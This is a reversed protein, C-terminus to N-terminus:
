ADKSWKDSPCATATKLHGLYPCLAADGHPLSPYPVPLSIHSARGHAGCYLNFCRGRAPRFCCAVCKGASAPMVQLARRHRRASFCWNDAPAHASGTDLRRGERKGFSCDSLIPAKTLNAEEATLIM